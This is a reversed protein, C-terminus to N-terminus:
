KTNVLVRGAAGRLTVHIWNVVEYGTEKLDM